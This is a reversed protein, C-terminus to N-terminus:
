IYNSVQSMVKTNQKKTGIPTYGEVIKTLQGQGRSVGIIATSKTQMGGTTTVTLECLGVCFFVCVCLSVHMWLVAPRYKNRQQTQIDTNQTWAWPCSLTLLWLRETFWRSYNFATIHGYLIKWLLPASLLLFSLLPAEASGTCSHVLHKRSRAARKEGGALGSSLYFRLAHLAAKFLTRWAFVDEDTVHVNNRLCCRVTIHPVHTLSHWHSPPFLISLRVLFLPYHCNYQKHPRNKQKGTGRRHTECEPQM